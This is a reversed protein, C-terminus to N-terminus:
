NMNLELVSVIPLHDSAVPEDLVKSEVVRWAGKPRVLIYDIQRNPNDSRFTFFDDADTANLWTERLADLERSTPRANIDGALIGLANTRLNFYEEIIKISEMRAEERRHDFHTAVFTLPHMTSADSPIEVTVMLACRKERGPLPLVHSDVIPFRSLVANGYEGGQYDIARGFVAHMGTLRGLEEAQDVGGSRRVVRDVEQVSVIDPNVSNIVDAIRALDLRDDMGLGYRINYSMVVLQPREPQVDEYGTAWTFHSVLFVTVVLIHIKASRM